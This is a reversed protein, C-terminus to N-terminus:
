DSVFSNTHLVKSSVIGTQFDWLSKKTTLVTSLEYGLSGNSSWNLLSLTFDWKQRLM